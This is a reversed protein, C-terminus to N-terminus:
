INCNLVMASANADRYVEYLTYTEELYNFTLKDFFTFPVGNAADNFAAVTTYDDSSVSTPIAIYYKQPNSTNSDFSITGDAITSADISNFSALNILPVNLPTGANALMDVFVDDFNLTPSNDNLYYASEGINILSEVGPYGGSGNWHFWYTSATEVPVPTSTPDPIPTATPVVVVPCDATNNVGVGSRYEFKMTAAGGYTNGIDYWKAGGNFPVSLGADLFILDGFSMDNLTNFDSTWVEVTVDECAQTPNSDGNGDTVNIYWSVVPVPTATPDPIATATPDPVPTATPDPIATATPDPVPTATPDPIATATPDPVPTATPDPVETATPDPIATATPDPVPTATPMPVPTATPSPTANSVVLVSSLTECLNSDVIKVIYSGAQLGSNGTNDSADGFTFTDNVVSNVPNTFTPYANSPVLNNNGANLLTYQYPGVGGNVQVTVTGNTINAM